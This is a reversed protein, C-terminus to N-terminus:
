DDVEENGVQALLHSKLRRAVDVDLGPITMDSKAGGATFISLTSLHLYREIPGQNVELHQIRNIALSTSVHWWCGKQLNIDLQRLLYKTHRARRPVWVVALFVLMSGVLTNELLLIIIPFDPILIFALWPLFVFFVFYIGIVLRLATPYKASVPQWQETEIASIDITAVIDNRQQPTSEYSDMNVGM